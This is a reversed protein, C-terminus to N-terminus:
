EQPAAETQEFALYEELARMCRNAQTLKGDIGATGSWQGSAMFTNTLNGLTCDKNLDALIEADSFPIVKIKEFVLGDFANPYGRKIQRKMERLVLGAAESDDTLEAPLFSIWKSCIFDEPNKYFTGFLPIANETSGTLLHDKDMTIETNEHKVNLEIRTWYSTKALKQFNKRGLHDPQFWDTLKENQNSFVFVNATILKSDNITISQIKKDTIEFGSIKTKYVIDGQLASTLDETLKTHSTSWRNKNNKLYPEIASLFAPPQNGFGLFAQWKASEFTQIDRVEETATIDFEGVSEAQLHFNHIVDEFISEVPEANEDIVLISKDMSKLKNAILLTELTNGIFVADFKNKAM